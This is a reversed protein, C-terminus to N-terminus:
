KSWGGRSNNMLRNYADELSLKIPIKMHIDLNEFTFTRNHGDRIRTLNELNVKEGADECGIKKLYQKVDM